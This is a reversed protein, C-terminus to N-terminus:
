ESWGYVNIVYEDSAVAAASLTLRMQAGKLEIPVSFQLYDGRITGGNDNVRYFFVKGSVPDSLTLRNVANPRAIIFLETIFHSKGTQSSLNYTFSTEGGVAVTDFNLDFPEQPNLRYSNGGLLTKSYGAYSTGRDPYTPIDIKTPVAVESPITPAIPVYAVDNNKM